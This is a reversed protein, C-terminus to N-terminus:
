RLRGDLTTSCQVAIIADYSVTFTATVWLAPSVYKGIFDSLPKVSQAATKRNLSLSKKTERYASALISGYPKGATHVESLKMAVSGLFDMAGVPGTGFELFDAVYEATQSGSLTGVAASFHYRSMCASFGKWDASRSSETDGGGTGDTTGPDSPAPTAPPTRTTAPDDGGVSGDALDSTNPPDARDGGSMSGFEGGDADTTRLKLPALPELQAWETVGSTFQMGTPDVLTLPQNRVYSYRNWSQPTRIVNGFLPDPGNMRGTRAQLSRANFYDLGAEGDREQGTFRQRPLSGSQNLTEGFPLYDSRGLVEGSPRFVIRVSGLADTAYYEIEEPPNQAHVATAAGGLGLLVLLCVIGARRRLHYRM